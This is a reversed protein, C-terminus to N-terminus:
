TIKTQLFIDIDSKWVSSGKSLMTVIVNLDVRDVSTQLLIDIDKKWFRCIKTRSETKEEDDISLKDFFGQTQTM